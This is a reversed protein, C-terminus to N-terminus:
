FYFSLSLAGGARTNFSFEFAPESFGFGFRVLYQLLISVRDGLYYEVGLTPGLGLVIIGNDNGAPDFSQLGITAGVFPSIRRWVRFHYEFGGGVDLGYDTRSDINGDPDLVRVGFGLYFPIIWRESLVARMGVQTVFLATERPIVGAGGVELRESETGLTALGEARFFMGWNGAAARVVNSDSAAATSPAACLFTVCVLALLSVSRFRCPLCIRLQRSM